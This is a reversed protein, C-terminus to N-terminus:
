ITFPYITANSMTGDAGVATVSASHAGVALNMPTLDLSLYNSGDSNYVAPSNYYLASDIVVLFYAPQTSGTPYSASVLYNDSLNAYQTGDSYTEAWM